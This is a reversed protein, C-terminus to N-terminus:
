SVKQYKCGSRGGGGKKSQLFDKLIAKNLNTYGVNIYDIISTKALAGRQNRQKEM